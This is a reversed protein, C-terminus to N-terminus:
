VAETAHGQGHATPSLAWGIEPVSLPPPLDRHADVLGVEGAFRGTLRDRAVWFGDGFLAWHGAYHLLRGWVEEPAFPRGSSHRMVQSEGWMAASDSFEELPPPRLM